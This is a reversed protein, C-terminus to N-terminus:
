IAKTYDAMAGDLDGNKYSADARAYYDMASRSTQARAAAATLVLVTVSLPLFGAGINYILRKLLSIM